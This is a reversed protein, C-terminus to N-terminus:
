SPPNHFPFRTLPGKLRTRDGWLSSPSWKEPVPSAGPRSRGVRLSTIARTFELWEAERAMRREREVALEAELAAIRQLLDAERRQWAAREDATPSSEQAVDEQPSSREAVERGGLALATATGVIGLLAATSRM